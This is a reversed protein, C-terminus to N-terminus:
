SKESNLLITPHLDIHSHMPENTLVCFSLIVTPDNVLQIMKLYSFCVSIINSLSKQSIHREAFSTSLSDHWDCHEGDTHWTMRFQQKRDHRAALNNLKMVLRQLCGVTITFSHFNRKWFSVKHTQAGCILRTSIIWCMITVNDHNQHTIKLRCV